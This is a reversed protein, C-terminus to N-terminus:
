SEHVVRASSNAAGGFAAGLVPHVSSGRGASGDPGTTTSQTHSIAMPFGLQWLFFIPIIIMFWGYITSQGAQSSSSIMGVLLTQQTEIEVPALCEFSSHFFEPVTSGQVARPNCPQIPLM